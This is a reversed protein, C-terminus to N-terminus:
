FQLLSLFRLAPFLWSMFTQGPARLVQVRGEFVEPWTSGPELCIRASSCRQPTKGNLQSLWLIGCQTRGTWGTAPSGAMAHGQLRSRVPIRSLRVGPFMRISGPQELRGSRCLPPCKTGVLPFASPVLFINSGPSRTM